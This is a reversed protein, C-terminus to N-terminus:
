HDGDDLVVEDKWQMSFDFYSEETSQVSSYRPTLAEDCRVKQINKGDFELETESMHIGHPLDMKMFYQM